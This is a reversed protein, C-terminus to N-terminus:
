LGVKGLIVSPKLARQTVADFFRLGLFLGLAVEVKAGSSDPWGPLLAIADVKTIIANCDRLISERLLRPSDEKRIKHYEDFGSERDMDAPNIVNWKLSLWKDRATDFAPFNHLPYHRMPGAIYITERDTMEAELERDSEQPPDRQDLNLPPPDEAPINEALDEILAAALFGYNIDDACRGEIPESGEQGKAFYSMISMVHKLKYTLLVLGACTKAPVDWGGQSLTWKILGGIIKFNALADGDGSYEAGKDRLLPKCHEDFFKQIYVSRTKADM